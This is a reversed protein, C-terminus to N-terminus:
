FLSLFSHIEFEKSVDLDSCSKKQLHSNITQIGEINGGNIYKTINNLSDRITDASSFYKGERIQARLNPM